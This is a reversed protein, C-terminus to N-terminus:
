IILNILFILNLILICFYNYIHGTHYRSFGLSLKSITSLIGSPGFYEIIAKDVSLVSITKEKLMYNQLLNNYFWDFYCAKNLFRFLSLCNNQIAAWLNLSFSHNLYIGFSCGLLSLIVPILTYLSNWLKICIIKENKPLIFISADFFNTGL